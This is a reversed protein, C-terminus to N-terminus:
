TGAGKSLLAEGTLKRFLDMGTLFLIILFFIEAFYINVFMQEAAFLANFIIAFIIYVFSRWGKRIKLSTMVLFLLAVPMGIVCLISRIFFLINNQQRIVMVIGIIFCYLIIFAEIRVCHYYLKSSILPRVSGKVAIMCKVTSDCCSLTIQNAAVMIIVIWTSEIVQVYSMWGLILCSVGAAMCLMMLFYVKRKQTAFKKEELWLMSKDLGINM